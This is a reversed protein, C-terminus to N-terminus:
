GSTQKIPLGCKECIPNDYEFPDEPRPVCCDCVSNSVDPINLNKVQQEAYETMADIIAQEDNEYYHAGHKKFIEMPTKM